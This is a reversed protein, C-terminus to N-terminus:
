NCATYVYFFVPQSLISARGLLNARLVVSDIYVTVGKRILLECAGRGVPTVQIGFLVVCAKVKVVLVVTVVPDPRMSQRGISRQNWDVLITECLIGVIARRGIVIVVSDALVDFMCFLEHAFLVGCGFMHITSSSMANIPQQM